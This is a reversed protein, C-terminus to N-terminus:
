AEEASDDLPQGYRETTVFDRFEAVHDGDIYYIKGTPKCRAATADDVEVIEPGGIFGYSGDDLPSFRYVQGPSMILGVLESRM